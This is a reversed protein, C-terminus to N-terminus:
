AVAAKLQKLTEDFGLLDHTGQRLFARIREIKAVAEDALADTGPKYEGIRVLLEVEHTSPWAARPRPRGAGQARRGVVANM